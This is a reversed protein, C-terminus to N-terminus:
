RPFFMGVRRRYNAYAAALPSDAIRREDSLATLTWLVSNAAVMLATIWHPLAVLCAVFALVYSAYLPHRVFRYPGQDCLEDPVHDGYALGFRRGWITQRAWEYLGISALLILAAVIGNIIHIPQYLGLFWVPIVGGFMLAGQGIVAGPGSDGPKFHLTRAGAFIFHLFAGGLFFLLVLHPVSPVKM